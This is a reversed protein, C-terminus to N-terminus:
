RYQCPAAKKQKLIPATKKNRPVLPGPEVWCHTAHIRGWIGSKGGIAAGQKKFAFVAFCLNRLVKEAQEPNMDRPLYDIVVKCYVPEEKDNVPNKRTPNVVEYTIPGHAVKGSKAERPAILATGTSNLPFFAHHFQLEAKRFDKEAKPDEPEPGFLRDKAHEDDDQNPWYTRFLRKWAGAKALPHGSIWDRCLHNNPTHDHENGAEKEAGARDRGSFYNTQLTFTCFFRFSTGSIEPEPLSPLKEPLSAYDPQWLHKNKQPAAQFKTM